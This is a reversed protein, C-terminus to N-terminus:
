EGPERTHRQETTAVSTKYVGFKQCADFVRQVGEFRADRDARILVQLRSVKPANSVEENPEQGAQTAEYRMFERLQEDTYKTKRIKLDGKKTVNITIKTADDIRTKSTDTAKAYPLTLRELDLTALETVVMFFILLQFVIDIMPTMNLGLDLDDETKALKM